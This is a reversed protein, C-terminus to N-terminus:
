TMLLGAGVAAILGGAVRSALRLGALRYGLGIGVLHLAATSLAFGAMYAAISGTAESGHAHGHFLALPAVLAAGVGTSLEVRALIMLGLAIVSVAIGAEVMPPAIGAHGALAGALARIQYPRMHHLPLLCSIVKVGRDLRLDVDAAVALRREFDEKVPVGLHLILGELQSGEGLVGVGRVTVHGIELLGDQHCGRLRSEIGGAGGELSQEAAQSLYQKVRAALVEPLM